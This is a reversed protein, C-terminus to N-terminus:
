GGEGTWDLGVDRKVKFEEGLADLPSGQKEGLQAKMSSLGPEDLVTVDVTQSDVVLIQTLSCQFVLAGGTDPERPVKLSTMVMSEYHGLRTVVTFPSPPTDPPQGLMLKALAAYAAFSPRTSKNHAQWTAFAAGAAAVALPPLAATAAITAASKVLSRVDGLPTDSVVGTLELELPSLIIHDAISTGREVPADTAKAAHSYSESMVADFQVITNGKDDLFQVLQPAGQIADYLGLAVPGLGVLSSM